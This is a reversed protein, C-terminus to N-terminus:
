MLDRITVKQATFQVGRALLGFHNHSFITNLILKVVLVFCLNTKTYFGFLWCASLCICFCRQSCHMLSHDATNVPWM